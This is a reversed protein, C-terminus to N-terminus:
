GAIAPAPGESAPVRALFSGVARSAALFGDETYAIGHEACFDRVIPQARSLRNRPMNTFLHHEIQYNLGGYVFDTLPSGKVNRATLIQELLFGLRTDDTINGMGKHNPAFVLSNYLGFAGQHLVVFALALWWPGIFAILCGYIVLHGLLGAAEFWALPGRIKTVRHASHIRAGTSQLPLLFWFYIRQWPVIARVLRSRTGRQGHALVLLSIDCDPDRTVHNPTAHHRDHKERWWTYSMGLLLNGVVLSAAAINRRSRFVQKHAVDHALLGFQTSLVGLALAAALVLVVGDALMAVALVGALGAATLSTKRLYYGPQPDFCGAAQLRARLSDYADPPIASAHAPPM